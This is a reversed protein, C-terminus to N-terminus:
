GRLAKGIEIAHKAIFGPPLANGILEAARYKGETLSIFYNGPFGQLLAAERLTIARNKTPHLFRGKSPNVCGGTITPAVEDWAMRGYVDRFGDLGQHCRLRLSAPLASRSGGDQPIRRILDLVEASRVEKENHLPDGGAKLHGIADRVTRRHTVPSAFPATGTTRMAILLLRHRRQPVGYDATNLIRHECCYGQQRLDGVFRNWRRDRVMAPVNEIMVARPRLVRIFRLLEILLNKQDPDRVRKGRNLTRIRSFAQCPPCAALVDLCGPSLALARAFRSAPVDRIDENWVKVKRHNRRYSDVALSDLEIAGLVNFGAQKLGLSLGGCGSFLDVATLKTSKQPVM